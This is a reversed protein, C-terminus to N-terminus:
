DNREWSEFRTYKKFFVIKVPGTPGNRQKAINLEMVIGDGPSEEASKKESGEPTNLFMVLDADQEISGSERIDSLSPRKGEADRRVQSLAIIPINLERALSKLSRSIEAIQEHRPILNNDSGILTLYDIFIIEVKQQVRLRRAQARLDLLKMNPMDVIYFPANYIRDAAEYILTFDSPKLLGARIKTSEIRAESSILRQVLAIDPMELTFFAIPIKKKKNHISMNAAMTLALTTKGMSPRAGIIILESNQFGSTMDDLKELGSPIGTYADKNNFLTQITDIAKPIIEQTSKFTLTQRNDALDFLHQQAEELVIRSDLSEDFSKTTVDASIRLLSRRTSCDKVIQAYYDVNASSPVVNTLAAVYAAGGSNELNGAQKLETTVTIIDAKRGQSFLSLIAEYVRRNANSYFDDPRLYQIAVDIANDDLLLAGLTAQEAEENHPPIKAKLAAVAM